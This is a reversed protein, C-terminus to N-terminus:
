TSGIPRSGARGTCCGTEGGAAGTQGPRSAPAPVSRAAAVQRRRRRGTPRGCGDRGQRGDCRSWRCGHTRRDRRGDGDRWRRDGRRRDEPASGRIETGAVAGDPASAPDIPLETSLAGGRSAPPMSTAAPADCGTRRARVAGASAADSCSPGSVASAARAAARRRRVARRVAACRRLSVVAAAAVTPAPDARACASTEAHRVAGSEAGDDLALGPAAGDPGDDAVLTREGPRREGCGGDRPWSAPTRHPTQREALEGCPGPRRGPTRRPERGRYRDRARLAARRARGARARRPVSRSSPRGYFRGRHLRVVQRRRDVVDVRRRVDTVGVRRDRGVHEHTMLPLAATLREQECPDVLVGGLHRADGLLLPKSRLLVDVADGVRPPREGGAEAHRVVEEDARAVLAVLAEDLLEQLPDPRVAAVVDVLVDVRPEVADAALRELRLLLEDVALAGLVVDHGLPDLLAVPEEAERGILLLQEREVVLPRVEDERAKPRVLRPREDGAPQLVERDATGPLRPADRDRPIGLLDRVHPGVREDVVEARQGVRPGALIEDVAEPRGRVVQQRLVDKAEVADVPRRHQERGAVVRRLLEEHVPIQERAVALDRLREAVEDRVRELEEVDVPRVRDAEPARAGDGEPLVADGRDVAHALAVLALEPVIEAVEERPDRRHDGAIPVAVQGGHRRGVRGDRRDELREGGVDRRAEVDEVQRARELPDPLDHPGEVPM